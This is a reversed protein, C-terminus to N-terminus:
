RLQQQLQAVVGIEMHEVRGAQLFEAETTTHPDQQLPPDTSQTSQPQTLAEIVAASTQPVM